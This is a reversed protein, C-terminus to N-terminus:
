PLYRRLIITRDANMRLGPSYGVPRTRDIMYFARYRQRSGSDLGYEKGITGQNFEFFGVTIWVAYVNSRTTTLNSLRQMLQTQFYLSRDASQCTKATSNMRFYQYNAAIYNSDSSGFTCPREGIKGNETFIKGWYDDYLNAKIGAITDVKNVNDVGLLAAWVAPNTVSNINIKGPERFTWRYGSPAATASVSTNNDNVYFTNLTMPTDAFPSQIRVYDFIRSGAPALFDIRKNADTPCICKPLTGPALEASLPADIAYESSTLEYASVQPVLMLELVSNFPRNPFYYAPVSKYSPLTLNTTWAAQTAVCDYMNTNINAFSNYFPKKLAGETSQTTSTRLKSSAESETIQASRSKPSMKEAIWFNAPTKNAFAQTEGRQRSVLFSNAKNFALEDATTAKKNLGNKYDAHRTQRGNYSYLDLPCQDFTIYPNSSANYEKYPNALRQLYVVRYGPEIFDQGLGKGINNLNTWRNADDADYPMDRPTNLKGNVDAADTYTGVDTVSFRVNGSNPVSISVVNNLTSGDFLVSTTNGSPPMTIYRTVATDKGGQSDQRALITKDAPGIIAFQGPKISCNCNAKYTYQGSETTGTGFYLVRDIPFKKERADEAWNSGVPAADAKGGSVVIRWAGDVIKNNAAAGLTVGRTSPSYEYNSVAEQTAANLWPNYLEIFLGSEPKYLQDMDAIGDCNCTKIRNMFEAIQAKARDSYTIGYKQCFSQISADSTDQCDAADYHEEVMYTKGGLNIGSGALNLGGGSQDNKSSEDSRWGGFDTDETMRAHFAFTETILLEPRECGWVEYGDINLYTCASDADRFDVANVAWQAVAKSQGVCAKAILYLDKALKTREEDALTANDEYSTLPRNIDMKFGAQVEEPLGTKNEITAIDCFPMDWSETTILSRVANKNSANKVMDFLRSELKQSDDDYVRLVRELEEPSYLKCLAAIRSGRPQCYGLDREYSSDSLNGVTGRKEWIFMGNQDIAGAMSGYFDLPTRFGKYAGITPTNPNFQATKVDAAGTSDTMYPFRYTFLDRNQTIARGTVVDDTINTGLLPQLNVDAPGFGMGNIMKTSDLTENNALKTGNATTGMLTYAAGVDGLDDINHANVNLRGDMDEVLVAYMPVVLTGDPMPRPPLGLNMWVSDNDGDGDNDVDWPSAAKSAATNLSAKGIAGLVQPVGLENDALGPRPTAGDTPRYYSPLVVRGVRINNSGGTFRLSMFDNSSNGNLDAADYKSPAGYLGDKKEGQFARKKNIACKASVTESVGIGSTFPLIAGRSNLILTSNGKFPGEIITVVRGAYDAGAPTMKNQNFSATIIDINTDEITGDDKLLEKWGYMDGIIDGRFLASSTNLRWKKKEIDYYKAPGVLVQMIGEELLEQPSNGATKSNQAALQATEASDRNKGTMLIFTMGMVAFFSLVAMVVLLIMGHHFRLNNRRYKNIFRM